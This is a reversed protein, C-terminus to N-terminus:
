EFEDSWFLNLIKQFVSDIGVSQSIYTRWLEFVRSSIIKQIDFTQWVHLFESFKHLPQTGLNATPSIRTAWVESLLKHLAFPVHLLTGLYTVKLKRDFDM